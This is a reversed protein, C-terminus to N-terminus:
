LVVPIPVEEIESTFVKSEQANMQNVPDLRTTVPNDKNKQKKLDEKSRTRKKRL